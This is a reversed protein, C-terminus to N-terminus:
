ELISFSIESINGNSDIMFFNVIPNDGELSILVYCFDTWGSELAMRVDTASPYAPTHTHSHYFAVLETGKRDSDLQAELQETPDMVYRYPSPTSNTIKYLDSVRVGPNDDSEYGALIGCCENPDDELAHDIMENIHRRQICIM